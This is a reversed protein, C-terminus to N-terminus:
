IRKENAIATLVFIGAIIWLVPPISFKQANGGIIEIRAGTAPEDNQAFYKAYAAKLEAYTIQGAYYAADAEDPTM